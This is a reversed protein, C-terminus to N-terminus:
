LDLPKKYLYMEGLYALGSRCVVAIEKLQGLNKTTVLIRQKYERDEPIEIKEILRGEHDYLIIECLGIPEAKQSYASAFFLIQAIDHYFSVDLTVKSGPYLTIFSQSEPRPNECQQIDPSETTTAAQVSIKVNSLIQEEGCKLPTSLRFYLPSHPTPYPSLDIAIGEGPLLHPDAEKKKCSLLLAVVTLSYLVKM